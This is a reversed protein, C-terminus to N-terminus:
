PAAPGLAHTAHSPLFHLAETHRDHPHSPAVDSILYHHPRVSPPLLGTARDVPGALLTRPRPRPVSARSPTNANLYFM